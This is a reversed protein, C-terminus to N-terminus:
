LANRQVTFQTYYGTQAHCRHVAATVYYLGSFKVGVGKIEVVTGAQVTPNGQCVGEAEILTLALRDYHAVAVKEAEAATTIARDTQQAVALNFKQSLQKGTSTEGMRTSSSQAQGTVATKQTPDWGQVVVRDVQQSASLRPYFEWLDEPWVLTAVPRDANAVPRFILVKGDVLVEYHLQKAREQLFELDTQNAQLVYEHVIKTDTAKASLGAVSAIQTVIDSDKQKLFTRIQKGRQLRHRRDYGRIMLSPARNWVFEPEFGTIEGRILPAALPAADYGLQIEVEDGIALPSDRNPWPFSSDRELWPLINGDRGGTLELTFMSPIQTTQDVAVNVLDLRDQESLMRGNINIEVVPLPSGLSFSPM